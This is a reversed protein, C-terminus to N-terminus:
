CLSKYSREFKIVLGQLLVALRMNCLECTNMRSVITDIKPRTKDEMFLGEMVKEAALRRTTSVEGPVLDYGTTIACAYRRCDPLQEEYEQPLEIVDQEVLSQKLQVAAPKVVTHLERLRILLDPDRDELLRVIEISMNELPHALTSWTIEKILPTHNAMVVLALAEFPQSSKLREASPLIHPQIVKGYWGIEFRDACEQANVLAALFGDEIIHHPLVPYPQLEFLLVHLLLAFGPTSAFHLPIAIDADIPDARAGTKVRPGTLPLDLLDRFFTSVRSLHRSDFYLLGGDDTEFM